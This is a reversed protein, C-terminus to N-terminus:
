SRGCESLFVHLRTGIDMNASRRGEGDQHEIRGGDDVRDRGFSFTLLNDEGSRFVLPQEDVADLFMSLRNENTLFKSLNRSQDPLRGEQRLFRRAALKLVAIRRRTKETQKSSSDRSWVPAPMHAAAFRMRAFPRTARQPNLEKRGIEHIVGTWQDTHDQHWKPIAYYGDLESGSTPVGRAQLQKSRYQM